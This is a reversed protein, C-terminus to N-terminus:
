LDLLHIKNPDFSLRPELQDFSARRRLRHSTNNVFKDSFFKDANNTSTFILFLQLIELTYLYLIYLRQKALYSVSALYSYLYAFPRSYSYSNFSVISVLFLFLIYSVDLM